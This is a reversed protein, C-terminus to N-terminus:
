SEPSSLAHNLLITFGTHFRVLLSISIYLGGGILCSFSAAVMPKTCWSSPIAVLISSSPPLRPSLGM